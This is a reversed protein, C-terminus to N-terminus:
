IPQTAQAILPRPSLNLNADPTHGNAIKAVALRNTVPHEFQADIYPSTVAKIATSM